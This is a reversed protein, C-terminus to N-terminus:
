VAFSEGCGCKAKENPNNFVFGSKFKDEIFDMESGIIYMIAKPDIFLKVGDQTIEEEFPRLVEAYEIAYTMGSCGGSKVGVRLGLSPKERKSMLYKIKEVARASITVPVKRKMIEGM